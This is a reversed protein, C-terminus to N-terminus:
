ALVVKRHGQVLEGVIWTEEDVLRQFAQVQERGVVALMGIGMNFVGYMEERSIQGRSQILKYLPPLPWSDVDVRAALDDPLIRPINDVWGGGTLHALAQVPCAANGLVRQLVPLYSRHPALLADALPIGLEPFVTDLPVGEFIKRILSYGNTHPGSSRLGVLVDGAKLTARPLVAAREVVGVLTGAIDFADPMYVGPMEATEGGLLVCEAASCAAAMGGVIEAAITPELRSSAYYDLFFLPRAGQVLIDDICHNVIDHGLSDCRRGLTKAAQAALMVKTGIGDTSAVLVPARLSQLPRADFMGGFAGLGAIVQANYTSRVAASMLSVARNGAGIDVGASAYRSSVGIDRRYQMGEFRIADVAAYATRVADDLTDGWATVGLVRGGTTVLREQEQRTGAHFIVAPTAPKDLGAIPLGTRPKDPYGASALVICAAAGHRWKVELDALRGTVCAVAIELLDSELLLMLPQTEPDGFRCNFELLSPGHATLMLGAYLVGVFPHGERRMGDVAPQLITRTLEAVMGPPCLPAPAYAGMGGTNPGVNGDGLRKHDRVPPMPKVTIGDSFTLLSVEEGILREEVIVTDGAAGFENEVLIRRLAAEAEANSEPVIVGKGAALGSAKIVVPYDLKRLHDRAMDFDSFAAYRATPLHHRSMFAKAFAKSAEIEAAARSPGFVRLGAAGLEDSVGAALPAEPGIIVLEVGRARAFAVLAPVDNIGVPINEAVSATGANGPAVFLRTLRPSQAIKWALAHERGGSGLLLVNM